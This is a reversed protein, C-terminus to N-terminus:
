SAVTCSSRPPSRLLHRLLTRRGACRRFSLYATFLRRAKRFRCRLTSGLHATANAHDIDPLMTAGTTVVAGAFVQSAEFEMLDFETAKGAMQSSNAVALWAATGRAAHHGGMM